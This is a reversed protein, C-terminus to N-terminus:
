RASSGNYRITFAQFHSDIPTRRSILARSASSSIIYPINCFLLHHQAVQIQITGCKHSFNVIIEIKQLLLDLSRDTSFLELRRDREGSLDREGLLLLLDSLEFELFSSAVLELNSSILM